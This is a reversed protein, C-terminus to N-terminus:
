ARVGREGPNPPTSSGGGQCTYGGEANRDCGLHISSVCASALLALAAIATLVALGNVIREVKM